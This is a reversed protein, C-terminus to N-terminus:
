RGLLPQLCNDFQFSTLLRKLTSVVKSKPESVDIGAGIKWRGHRVRDLVDDDDAAADYAARSSEIEGRM